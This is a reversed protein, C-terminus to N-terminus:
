LPLVIGIGLSMGKIQTSGLSLNSMRVEAKFRQGFLGFLYNAAYGLGSAPYVSSTGYLMYQDIGIGVNLINEEPRSESIVPTGSVTTFKKTQCCAGLVSYFVYGGLGTFSSSVSNQQNIASSIFVQFNLKNNIYHSFDLKGGFGTIQANNVDFQSNELGFTIFSKVEFQETRYDLDAAAAGLSPALLILFYLLKQKLLRM